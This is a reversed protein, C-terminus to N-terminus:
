AVLWHPVKHAQHAQWGEGGAKLIGGKTFKDIVDKAREKCRSYNGEATGAEKLAEAAVKLLADFRLARIDDPAGHQGLPAVALAVRLAELVIKQNLGRGKAMAKTLADAAESWVVACSKITKGRETVGVELTELRFTHPIASPGDKVKNAKWTHEGSTGASVEITLEAGGLLTTSGRMGRVADKGSHHILLVFCEALESLRDAGAMAVGMEKTSNEDMGTSARAFTDLILVAGPGVSQLVQSALDVVDDHNALSFPRGDAYSFKEPITRDGWKEWATVRRAIGLVSELPMYVVPTPDIWHGFWSTGAAISMALDLALFTKGASPAGYIFGSGRRPMLDEVRWDPLPLAKLESGPRIRYSPKVEMEFAADPNM